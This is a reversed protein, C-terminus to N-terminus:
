PAERTITLVGRETLAALDTKTYARHGAATLKQKARKVNERVTGEAVVLAAAVQKCTWGEAYLLVSQSERPSLLTLLASAM